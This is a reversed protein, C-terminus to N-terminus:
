QVIQGKIFLNIAANTMNNTFYKYEWKRQRKDEKFFTEKAKKAVRPKLSVLTM